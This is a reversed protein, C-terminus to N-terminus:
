LMEVVVMSTCSNMKAGSKEKSYKKKIRVNEEKAKKIQLPQFVSPSTNRQFWVTQRGDGLPGDHQQADAKQEKQDCSFDVQLAACVALVM